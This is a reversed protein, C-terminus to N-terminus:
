ADRGAGKRRQLKLVLQVTWATVLFVVPTTAVCILLFPLLYPKIYVFKDMVSTCVPVFVLAMNALMAKSLGEIHRPKVVRTMLLVTLLILAIVSAPFKVPLVAAIGEGALCVGFILAAQGVVNM